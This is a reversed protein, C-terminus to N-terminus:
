GTEADRGGGGMLPPVTLALAIWFWSLESM